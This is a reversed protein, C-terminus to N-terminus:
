FWNKRNVQGLLSRVERENMIPSFQGGLCLRGDRRATYYCFRYLYKGHLKEQEPVCLIRQVEYRNENDTFESVVDDINGLLFPAGIGERNKSRVWVEKGLNTLENLCEIEGPTLDM